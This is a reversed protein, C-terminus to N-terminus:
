EVEMSQLYCDRGSIIEANAEHCAPCGWRNDAPTFENGCHRCKLVLPKKEFVLEATSAISDEKLIDFFQRVCDDVIGSVEGLVVDVRTIKKAGAEKAKTLVLSLLSETFSSEHM